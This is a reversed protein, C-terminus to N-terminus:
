CVFGGITVQGAKNIVTGDRSPESPEDAWGKANLWTAPHPIYKGQAERWQPSERARAIAELMRDVMAVDPKIKAFAAEAHGRNQRRPYARWFRDFLEGDLGRVRERKARSHKVEVEVEVEAKALSHKGTSVPTLAQKGTEATLKQKSRREAMYQRMYEKRGETDRMDRYKEFSVVRYMLGALHVIRRGDEDTNQSDSDPQMLYDIAAKIDETSTGICAALLKQNLEVVGPPETNAIVYAWVAFVVPGSGYMSGTFVRDFIKGYM